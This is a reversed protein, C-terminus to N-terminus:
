SASRESLTILADLILIGAGRDGLVVPNMDISEIQPNSIMLAGLTVAAGAVADTDMPQEGRVGKFIPSIHLDEIAELADSVSFPPILLVADRLAEVYTGGDGLMIVPGISPDRKAGIVMEHRGRHMPAVIVRGSINMSAMRDLCDSAAAHVDDKRSLGLHVLGHESKHPIQDACGKVVVACEFRSFAAAAEDASQCVTFDVVPLKASALVELSAAEDLIAGSQPDISVPVDTPDVGERAQLCRHEVYQRLSTLATVDDDYVVVGADKFVGRITSQPASVTVPKGTEQETAAAAAAFGTVDYGPGAVPMGVHVIDVSPDNAVARLTDGFMTGGGILGATMDVPNQIAGYSPLIGELTQQTAPALNAMELKLREATDACIVGVAGSHSLVGVRGVGPDRAKLYLPVAEVMERVGQVQWAGHARLFARTVGDETAMAGTHSMASQRGRESSGTKLAVVSVGNKRARELAAALAPGNKISELYILIVRVDEDDLVMQIIDAAWLDADNGSATMYRLGYGSQRLFAYLMQSLAGSQSVVAIPGDEPPLEMFITSFNAIAGTKFNAVGQANPGLLRLGGQQARAVMRQEVERGESGTEGFGSSIIVANPVGRAVCADIVAEVGDSPVVVVVLDPTEPLSAVDPYAKLEQVIERNPNIPYIAGKFGFRRLYHIPRGGVRNVNDSAGVVAVSRPTLLAGRDNSISM